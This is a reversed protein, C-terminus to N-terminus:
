EYVILQRLTSYNLQKNIVEHVNEKKILISM